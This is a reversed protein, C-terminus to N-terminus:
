INDLRDLAVLLATCQYFLFLPPYSLLKVISEFSWTEETGLWLKGFNVSWKGILSMTTLFFIVFFLCISPSELHGM